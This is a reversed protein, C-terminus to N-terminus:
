SLGHRRMRGVLDRCAAEIDPAGVAASVVAVRTAGARLVDDLNGAHIGGIAVWPLTVIKAAEELAALGVPPSGRRKTATPYVPGLALYDPGEDLARRVQELSHTSKGVFCGPALRRVEEVPCDDQGV